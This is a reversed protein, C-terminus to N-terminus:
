RWSLACVQRGAGGSRRRRRGGSSSNSLLVFSATLLASCGWHAATLPWNILRLAEPVFPLVYQWIKGGFLEGTSKSKSPITWESLSRQSRANTRADTYLHSLTKVVHPCPFFFQVHAASQNWKPSIFDRPWVGSAVPSCNETGIVAWEEHGSQLM